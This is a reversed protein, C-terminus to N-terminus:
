KSLHNRIREQAIDYYWKDLEFGIYNRNTNICAIATTWSWMTFDLVTEWENTYTKILYEILAVPKQTPHFKGTMNHCAKFTQISRPYYTDSDYRIIPVNGYNDSKGGSAKKQMKGKTMQPNYVEKKQSFVLINEHYKLPRIKALMSGCSRDKNWVWEYKFMKPNSMVLASTFPQSGFLVIAGNKKTVRKLQEWMPEFPIVNDWKCATTWYPPDTIICDISGDPIRKMWELCDENFIQNIM